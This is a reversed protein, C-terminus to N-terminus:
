AGDEELPQMLAICLMQLWDRVSHRISAEGILFGAAELEARLREPEHHVFWRPYEASGAPVHAPAAPVLDWGEDGGVSTSVGLLGGPRLVRRWKQVVASIDVRDVHLLSASSWLGDLSATAFPLARVDAVVVAGRHAALAAMSRSMDVGVVHHGRRGLECVDAGPGCGLDAVVATSPLRSCFREFFAAAEPTRGSSVRECEEAVADYSATTVVSRHESVETTEPHKM